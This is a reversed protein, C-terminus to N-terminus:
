SCREAALKRFCHIWDITNFSSLTNLFTPTCGKRLEWHVDSYSSLPNVHSQVHWPQQWHRTFQQGVSSCHGDHTKERIVVIWFIGPIRWIRLFLEQPIRLSKSAHNIVEDFHAWVCLLLVHPQKYCTKDSTAGFGARLHTLTVSFPM